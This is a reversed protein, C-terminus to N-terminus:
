PQTNGVRGDYGTETYACEVSEGRFGLLAEVEAQGGPRPVGGVQAEAAGAGQAQAAAAGRRAAGGGRQDPPATRETNGETRRLLM